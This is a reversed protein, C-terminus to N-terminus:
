LIHGIIYASILIILIKYESFFGPVKFTNFCYEKIIALNTIVVLGSLVYIFIDRAIHKFFELLKSITNDM